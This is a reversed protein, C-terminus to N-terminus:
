DMGTTTTPVQGQGGYGYVNEAGYKQMAAQANLYPNSTQGSTQGGRLMMAMALPNMGGGSNGTQAAQNVLQNQQALAANQNAQQAAVNQFVPMLGSIDPQQQQIIYPNQAYPNYGNM